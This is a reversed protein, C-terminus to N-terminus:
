RLSLQEDIACLPQKQSPASGPLILNPIQKKTALPSGLPSPMLSPQNYEPEASINEQEDDDSFTLRRALKTTGPTRQNNINNHNNFNNTNAKRDVIPSPTVNLYDSFNLPSTPFTGHTPLAPTGLLAYSGTNGHGLNLHHSPPTSPANEHLYPDSLSHKFGQNMGMASHIGMASPSTPLCVLFEPDDDRYLDLSKGDSYGLDSLPRKFPSIRSPPTRPSSPDLISSSMQEEFTTSSTTTLPPQHQLGPSFPGDLIVSDLESTLPNHHFLDYAKQHSAAHTEPPLSSLPRKDTPSTFPIRYMPTSSICASSNRTIRPLRSLDEHPGPIHRAYSINSNTSYQHHHHHNNVNTTSNSPGSTRLRKRSNRIDAQGALRKSPRKNAKRGIPSTVAFPDDCSHLQSPTSNSASSSIVPVSSRTSVAPPM